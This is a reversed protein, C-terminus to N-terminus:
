LKKSKAPVLLWATFPIDLIDMNQIDAGRSKKKPFVNEAGGGGAGSGAVVGPLPPVHFRVNHAM